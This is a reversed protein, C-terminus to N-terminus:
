TITLVAFLDDLSEPCRHLRIVEFDSAFEQVIVVDEFPWL